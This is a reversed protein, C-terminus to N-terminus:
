TKLYILNCTNHKELLLQTSCLGTFPPEIPLMGAQPGLSKLDFGAPPLNNTIIFPSFLRDFRLICYFINIYIM